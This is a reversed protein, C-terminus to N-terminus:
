PLARQTCTKWDGNTVRRIIQKAMESFSCESRLEEFPIPKHQAFNFGLEDLNPSPYDALNCEDDDQDCSLKSM